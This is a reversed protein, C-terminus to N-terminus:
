IWWGGTTYTHTHVYGTAYGIALQGWVVQRSKRAPDLLSLQHQPPNALSGRPIVAWIHLDPVFITLNQKISLKGLFIVHNQLICWTHVLTICGETQATSRGVPIAIASGWWFSDFLVEM